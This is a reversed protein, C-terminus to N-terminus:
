TKANDAPEAVTVAQAPETHPEADSLTRGDPCAIVPKDGADPLVPVGTVMEPVFKPVVCPALVIVNLPVEAATELQLSELITAVTGAPAVAPFTMTVM